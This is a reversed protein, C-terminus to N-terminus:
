SAQAERLWEGALIPDDDQAQIGWTCLAILVIGFIFYFVNILILWVGTFEPCRRPACCSQRGSRM